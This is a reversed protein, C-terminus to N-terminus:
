AARAAAVIAKMKELGTKAVLMADQKWYDRNFLELSLIGAYGIQILDRLLEKLPAVGDGPYVRHADTIQQRPPVAPYDNMHFNFMTARGLLKVGHFDSGGKHLHYVDPLICAKPHGTEVAVFTAESLKSLTKSHGWLEAQPVVAMTDGLELLARYREAIRPLPIDTRDTAGFPPAALRKGGIQQVVDMSRKAEELGKKRRTEDDVIWEAFGISSEVRLGADAIRKGLDKLSGGSQVFKDLENIWPEICRYGAAAAIEVEQVISLNQGRITSTNLCYDFPDKSEPRAQTPPAVALAASAAATASMWARRTIEPNM